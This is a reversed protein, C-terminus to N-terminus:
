FLGGNFLQDLLHSTGKASEATITTKAGNWAPALLGKVAQVSRKVVRGDPTATPEVNVVEGRVMEIEERLETAEEESLEFSDINELLETLLSVLQEYGPSVQEVVNHEQHQSNHDGVAVQAYDGAHIVPGDGYHHHVAPEASKVFPSGAAQSAMGTAPNDRHARGAATIWVLPYPQGLGRSSDILNADALHSAAAAVEEDTYPLFDASGEFEGLPRRTEPTPDTTNDIWCLLDWSSRKRRRSRDKQRDEVIKLAAKGAATLYCDDAARQGKRLLGASSLSHLVEFVAEPGGNDLVPVFDDVFVVQGDAELERTRVLARYEPESLRDVIMDEGSSGLPSVAAWGTAGVGGHTEVPISIPNKAFEREMDRAIGRVWKNMGQKTGIDIRRPM